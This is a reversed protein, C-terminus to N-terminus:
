LRDLIFHHPVQSENTQTSDGAGIGIIDGAGTLNARFELFMLKYHHASTATRLASSTNPSQIKPLHAAYAPTMRVGAQPLVADPAASRITIYTSTEGKNPLVYNGTYTANPELTIVDGPQAADLAAQLDGGAPVAITAAHAATAVLVSMVGAGWAPIRLRM